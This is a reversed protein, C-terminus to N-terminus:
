AAFEGHLQKCAEAAAAAADEISDFYGCSVTRKDVKVRVRWKQERESWRVNRVGSRSNSQANPRNRM